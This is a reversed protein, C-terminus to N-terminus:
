PQTTSSFCNAWTTWGTSSCRFWLWLIIRIFRRKEAVVVTKPQDTYKWREHSTVAAMKSSTSQGGHKTVEHRGSKLWDAMNQRSTLSPTKFINPTVAPWSCNGPLLNEGTASAGPAGSDDDHWLLTWLTRTKTSHVPPVFCAFLSCSVWNGYCCSIVFQSFHRQRRWDCPIGYSYFVSPFDTPYESKQWPNSGLKFTLNEVISWPLFHLTVGPIIDHHECHLHSSNNRAKHDNKHDAVDISSSVDTVILCLSSSWFEGATEFSINCWVTHIVQLHFLRPVFNLPACMGATVQAIQAELDLIRQMQARTTNDGGLLVGTTTMYKLYASISQPSLPICLILVTPGRLGSMEGASTSQVCDREERTWLLQSVPALSLVAATQGM